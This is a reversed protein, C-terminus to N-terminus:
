TAAARSKVEERQEPTLPEVSGLYVFQNDAVWSSGCAGDPNIGYWFHATFWSVHENSQYGNVQELRSRELWAHMDSQGIFGDRDEKQLILVDENVSFTIRLATQFHSRDFIQVVDAPVAHGADVLRCGFSKAYYKYVNRQADEFNRGFVQSFDIFRKRLVDAENSLVWDILQDYARDWPQSKANNCRSCLNKQYKLSASNSGQILKQTGAVVHALASDEKYPGKGHARVLDTKKFKHEASDAHAGCMWCLVKSEPM